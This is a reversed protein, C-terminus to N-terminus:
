HKDRPVTEISWYETTMEPDVKEIKWGFLNSYFKRLKEIDKAPIDFYVVTHDM